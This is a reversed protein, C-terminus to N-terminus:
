GDAPVKKEKVPKAYRECIVDRVDAPLDAPDFIADAALEVSEGREDMALEEGARLRKRVEFDTPFGCGRLVRWRGKTTKKAPVTVM